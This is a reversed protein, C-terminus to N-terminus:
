HTRAQQKAWNTECANGCNPSRGPDPAPWACACRMLIWAQEGDSGHWARGGRSCSGAVGAAGVSCRWEQQWASGCLHAVLRHQQATSICHACPLQLRLLSPPQACAAPATAPTVGPSTGRAHQMCAKLGRARTKGAAHHPLAVACCMSLPTQKSLASTAAHVCSPLRPGCAADPGRLVCDGCATLRGIAAAARSPRPWM